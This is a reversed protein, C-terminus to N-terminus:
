IDPAKYIFFIKLFINKILIMRTKIKTAGKAAEAIEAMDVGELLIPMIPPASPGVAIRIVSERINELGTKQNSHRAVTKHIM